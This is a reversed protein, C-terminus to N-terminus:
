WGRNVHRPTAQPTPTDVVVVDVRTLQRDDIYLQYGYRGAPKHASSADVEFVFPSRDVDVEAEDIGYIEGERVFRWTREVDGPGGEDQWAVAVAVRYRQGRVIEPVVRVPHGDADLLTVSKSFVHAQTLGPEGDVGDVINTGTGLMFFAGCGSLIACTAVLGATKQFTRM